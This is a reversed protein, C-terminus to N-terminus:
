NNAVYRAAVWGGDSLQMWGGRSGVVDFRDGARLSGVQGYRAGPGSRVRVNSTASYAGNGGGYAQQQNARARQQSCGIYSGAAAGAGAGVVTGVTRDGRGAVRNGLVGGVVGGILAGAGQRGGPADCNTIGNARSQASAVGPALAAVSATLAMAAAATLNFVNRM